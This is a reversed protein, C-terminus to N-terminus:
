SVEILCGLVGYLADRCADRVMNNFLKDQWFVPMKAYKGKPVYGHWFSSDLFIPIGSLAFDPKFPLYDPHPVASPHTKAFEREIGTDKSRIRSM